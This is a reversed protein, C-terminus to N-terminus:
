RLRYLVLPQTTRYRSPNLTWGLYPVQTAFVAVADARSAAGGVFYRAGNAEAWRLPAGPVGLYPIVGPRTIGGIDVLPHRTEFALQGIAYIAIPADAPVHERVYAGLSAFARDGLKKNELHPVEALLITALAVCVMAGTVGRFLMSRGHADILWLVAICAAPMSVLCYRTQVLTHDFLYFAGCLAPWALLVWIVPPVSRARLRRLALPLLALAVPFGAAYVSALHLTVESLSAGRKALNTNPIISHFTHAAFACWAALPLVMLVAMAGAQALRVRRATGGRRTLVQWLLAPAAIAALLLLEPRLLPGIALLLGGLMLRPWSRPGVFVAWAAWIGAGMATVSEMGSFSWHALFPNVLTVAVAAWAFARRSPEAAIDAALRWVGLGMALLGLTCALKASAIWDLGLRHVGALILVWLPATDGNTVLANFAFGHGEAVSRAFELHIYADDETYGYGYVFWLLALLLLSSTWLLDVGLASGRTERMELTASRPMAM